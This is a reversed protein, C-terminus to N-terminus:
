VRMSRTSDTPRSGKRSPAAGAESKTRSTDTKRRPAQRESIRQVIVDIQGLSFPKTLYDYAGLRVAQVASESSAYGTVILVIASPNAACAARLV